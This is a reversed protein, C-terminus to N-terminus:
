DKTYVIEWHHGDLDMITISDGWEENLEKVRKAGFKEAKSVVQEMEKKSAVSNSLIFGSSGKFDNVQKAFDEKQSLVLYFDDEMEFLCLNENKDSISLQFANKYFAISKELNEAALTIFNIKPRM